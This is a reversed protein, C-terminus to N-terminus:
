PKTGLCYVTGDHTGIILRGDAVAPSATVEKGLKVTQINNGNSLDLVYLNGDLSGVYVREGVIVPSSDVHGKTLFSWAEAGTSKELAHVRKDRSGTVILNKGVAASAYFDNPRKAAQYRWVVEGKKWDVALVEKTITGVFLQDGSIAPTAGIQSELEVALLEKGNTADIVHMQSDCGTVFTRGGVVAPTGLVPGGAVKFKWREEGTKSLCYLTENACGFLVDDGYFNAASTVESKTDFTWRSKGTAADVCHFIGDLDGVYVAGDKVACAVKLAGAKYRWKETGSKLDLAYLHEDFSGVFVTGGSIAATGEVADKTKFTWCIDLTDPLRAGSVGTQHADGRFVPWDAHAQLNVVFACLVGLACMAGYPNNQPRQTKTDVVRQM